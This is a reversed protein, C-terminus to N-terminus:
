TARWTALEARIAGLPGCDVVITDGAAGFAYRALCNGTGVLEGAKITRGRRSLENALWVVANMPDGLIADGRGDVSEGGTKTLRVALRARDIAHWDEIMAGAVYVGETGNDAVMSPGDIATFDIYNGEVFEIAGAMAGIAAAVTAADYPTARPPLDRAMRFIFEVELSWRKGPGGMSVRAPSAHMMARRMRGFYPAALGHVKQMAPNVCAMYWGLLDEPKTGLRALLTEAVAYSEEIDRPRVDSPLAKLKVGTRRATALLEAARAIRDM